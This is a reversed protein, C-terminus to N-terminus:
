VGQREQWYRRLGADNRFVIQYRDLEAPGVWAHGSSEPNLVLPGSGTCEFYLNLCHMTGPEPPLSDQYFLFRAAVCDLATEEKLEKAVTQEVTEGYDVKGGPLCWADAGYATRDRQLLLVKGEPNPVILRVALIPHQKPAKVGAAVPVKNNAQEM